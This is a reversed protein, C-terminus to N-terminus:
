NGKREIWHPSAISVSHMTKDLLEAQVTIGNGNKRYIIASICKYEIGNCVVPEEAMMAEKLETNTM